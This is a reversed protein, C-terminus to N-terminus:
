YQCLVVCSVHNCPLLSSIISANLLRNAHWPHLSIFAFSLSIITLWNACHSLDKQSCVIPKSDKRNEHFSFNCKSSCCSMWIMHVKGRKGSELLLTPRQHHISPIGLMKVCPWDYLTEMRFQWSFTGSKAKGFIVAVVLIVIRKNTRVLLWLLLVLM